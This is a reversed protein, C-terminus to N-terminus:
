AGLQVERELKAFEADSMAEIQKATMHSSKVTTATGAGVRQATRAQKQLNGLLEKRDTQVLRSRQIGLEDAADRVAAAKTWATQPSGHRVADVYLKEALHYLPSTPSLDQEYQKFVAEARAELQQTATSRSFDQAYERKAELKSIERDYRSIQSLAKVREGQSIDERVAYQEWKARESEHKEITAAIPDAATSPQPSSRKLAALEGAMRSAERQQELHARELEEESKYKGAWMRPAPQGEEPAASEDGSSPEASPVETVAEDTPQGEPAVDPLTEDDM